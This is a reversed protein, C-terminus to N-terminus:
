FIVTLYRLELKLLQLILVLTKIFMEQMRKEIETMM